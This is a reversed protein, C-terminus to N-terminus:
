LCARVLALMNRTGAPFPYNSWLQVRVKGDDTKSLDVLVPTDTGEGYLGGTHSEGAISFGNSTPRTYYRINPDGNGTYAEFKDGICGSLREAPISSVVDLDPIKQRLEQPSACASLGMAFILACYKLSGIPDRTRSGAISFHEARRAHRAHLHYSINAERIRTVPSNTLRVHLAAQAKLSEGQVHACAEGVTPDLLAIPPLV